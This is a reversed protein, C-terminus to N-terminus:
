PAREANPKQVRVTVPHPNGKQECAFRVSGDPMVQASTEMVTPSAVLAAAVKANAKAAAIAGGPAAPQPQPAQDAYAAASVAGLSLALIRTKM